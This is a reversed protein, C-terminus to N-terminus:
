RSAVRAAGSRQVWQTPADGAMSRVFCSGGAAKVRDCLKSAADRTAFGSVSMRFLSSSDSKVRATAPAFKSLMATKAVAGNWAAQARAASTFAGLQVVFTGSEVAKAKPAPAAKAEAMKKMAPKDTKPAMAVARAMPKAARTAAPVVTQRVKAPGTASAILPAEAVPKSDAMEFALAPASSAVEVSQVPAAEMAVDIAPEAPTAAAAVEQSAPQLALRSPMGADNVPTVGLLSAVQQSASNPRVFQAWETIRADLLDPSLDQAAMVRAQNWKGALAYALALNQRLKTDARGDRSATELVTVAGAPDGALAVALGYDAASLQTRHDDLTRMAADKNGTAIQALALNLAVKANGPDLSLADTLATQASVFRGANLYAQGLTGRFEANDPAAAVAREALAAARDYKGKAMAKAAQSAFKNAGKVPTSASALPVHGQGCGTLIAGCIVSSAAFKILTATKM